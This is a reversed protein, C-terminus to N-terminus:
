LASPESGAWLSAGSRPWLSGHARSIEPWWQASSPFANPQHGAPRSNLGLEAGPLLWAVKLWLSLQSPKKLRLTPLFGWRWTATLSLSSRCEDSELYLISMQNHHNDGEGPSAPCAAGLCCSPRPRSGSNSPSCLAKRRRLPIGDQCPAGAFASGKEWM